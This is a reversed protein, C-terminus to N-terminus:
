RPLRGHAPQSIQEPSWALVGVAPGATRGTRRGELRCTRAARRGHRGADAVNGALRDQVYARLRPTRRSSPWGEPTQRGAPGEVPGGWARYVQKGAGRPQTAACSVRSRRRTVGLGAPSRGCASSGPRAAARDGRAGRLVPVTRTPEDLNIPPMGGAHRFWRTAVPTSVGVRAALTRASVVRRRDSALVARQVARSPEPRGPSRMAPRLARDAAWQRRCGAESAARAADKQRESAVCVEMRRPTAVVPQIRRSQGCRQPSYHQGDVPKRRSEPQRRRPPDCARRVRCAQQGLMGLGRDARRLRRHRVGYLHVGRDLAARLHLRRGCPHQPRCRSSATWWIRRAPPRRTLRPPASRRPGLSGTGAMPGCSGSWPAAPWRSVRETCTPGCRPPGTSARPSADATNM